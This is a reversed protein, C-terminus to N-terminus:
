RAIEDVQRRAQIGSHYGEKNLSGLDRGDESCCSEVFRDETYLTYEFEVSLSRPSTPTNLTHGSFNTRTTQTVEDGLCLGIFYRQGQLTQLWRQAETAAQLQTNLVATSPEV